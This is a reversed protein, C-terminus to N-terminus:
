LEQELLPASGAGVMTELRLHFLAKRASKGSKSRICERFTQVTGSTFLAGRRGPIEIWDILSGTVIIHGLIKNGAVDPLQGEPRSASKELIRRADHVVHDTSPLPLSDVCHLGANRESGRDARVDGVSAGRTLAWIRKSRGHHDPSGTAPEENGGVRCTFAKCILRVSEGHRRLIRVAICSSIDQAAILQHLEVH